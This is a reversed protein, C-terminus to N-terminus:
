YDRRVRTRAKKSPRANITQDHVRQFVYIDETKPIIILDDKSWITGLNTFGLSTALHNIAGIEHAYWLITNNYGTKYSVNQPHGENDNYLPIEEGTTTDYKGTLERVITIEDDQKYIIIEYSYRINNFTLTVDDDIIINDEVVEEKEIWNAIDQYDTKNWDSGSFESKAKSALKVLQEESIQQGTALNTATGNNVFYTDKGVETQYAKNETETTNNIKITKM